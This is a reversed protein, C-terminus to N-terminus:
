QCGGRKPLRWMRSDAAHCHRWPSSEHWGAPEILGVRHLAMAAAGAARGDIEAPPRIGHRHRATAMSCPGDRLESLLASACANIYAVKTPCDDALHMAVIHAAIAAGTPPQIGPLDFLTTQRHDGPGSEHGPDLM